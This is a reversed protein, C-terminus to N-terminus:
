ASMILHWFVCDIHVVHIHRIASLFFNEMFGFNHLRLSEQTWELAIMWRLYLYTINLREDEFFCDCAGKIECFFFSNLFSGGFYYPFPCGLLIFSSQLYIKSSFLIISPNSPVGFPIFCIAYSLPHRFKCLRWRYVLSPCPSSLPFM